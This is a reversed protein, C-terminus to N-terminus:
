PVTGSNLEQTQLLPPPNRLDAACHKPVLSGSSTDPTYTVIDVLQPFEFVGMANEEAFHAETADAPVEFVVDVVLPLMVVLATVVCFGVVILVTVAGAPEVLTRVM